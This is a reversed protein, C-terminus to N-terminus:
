NEAAAQKQKIGQPAQVPAKAPLGAGVTIADFLINAYVV